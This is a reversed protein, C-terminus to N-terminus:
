YWVYSSQEPLQDRDKLELLKLMAYHAYVSMKGVADFKARKESELTESRLNIVIHGPDKDTNEPYYDCRIFLNDRQINRLRVM